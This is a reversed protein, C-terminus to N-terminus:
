PNKARIKRTRFYDSVTNVTDSPKRADGLRTGGASTGLVDLTRAGTGVRVAGDVM